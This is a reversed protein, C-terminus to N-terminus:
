SFISSAWIYAKTFLSFDKKGGIPRLLNRYTSASGSIGNYNNTGYSAGAAAKAGPTQGFYYGHAAMNDIPDETSRVTIQVVATGSCLSSSGTKYTANSKIVATDWNTAPDAPAKIEIKSIVKTVRCYASGSATQISSSYGYSGFGSSSAGTQQSNSVIVGGMAQSDCEPTSTM